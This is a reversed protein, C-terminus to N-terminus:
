VTWSAKCCSCPAPHCPDCPQHTTEPPHQGRPAGPSGSVAIQREQAQKVLQLESITEHCAQVQRPLSLMVVARTRTHGFTRSPRQRLRTHAHARASRWWRDLVQGGGGGGRVQARVGPEKTLLVLLDTILADALTLLTVVVRLPLQMTATAQKIGWAVLGSSLQVSYLVPALALGMAKAILSPERKLPLPRMTMTAHQGAAALHHQQWTISSSPHTSWLSLLLSQSPIALCARSVGSDTTPQQTARLRNVAGPTLQASHATSPTHHAFL